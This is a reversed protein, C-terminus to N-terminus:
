NFLNGQISSYGYSYGIPFRDKNEIVVFEERFNCCYFLFGFMLLTFFIIICKTENSIQLSPNVPSKVSSM